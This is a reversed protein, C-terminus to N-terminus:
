AYFFPVLVLLLPSFHDGLLSHPVPLAQSMTSEFPRGQTTNWFLQDFLGLDFRFSHYSEHRLVALASYLILYAAALGLALRGEYRAIRGTRASILTTEREGDPLPRALPGHSYLARAVSLRRRADLRCC